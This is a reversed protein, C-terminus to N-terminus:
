FYDVIFYYPGWRDIPMCLIEHVFSAKHVYREMCLHRRIELLAVLSPGVVNAHHVIKNDVLTRIINCIQRYAAIDLRIHNPTTIADSVLPNYSLISLMM